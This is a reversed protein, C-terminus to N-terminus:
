GRGEGGSLNPVCLYCGRRKGGKEKGKESLRAIQLVRVAGRGSRAPCRSSGERKLFRAHLPQTEKGGGEGKKRHRIHAFPSEEKAGGFISTATKKGRGGKKGGRPKKKKRTEKRLELSTPHTRKGEERKVVTHYCYLTRERGKPLHTLTTCRFL